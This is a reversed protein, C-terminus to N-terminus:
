KIIKLLNNNLELIEHGLSPNEIIIKDINKEIFNILKNAIFHKKNDLNFYSEILDVIKSIVILIEDPFSFNLFDIQSQFYKHFEKPNNTAYYLLNKFNIKIKANQYIFYLLPTYKKRLMDAKEDLLIEGDKRLFDIFTLSTYKHHTLIEEKFCHSLTVSHKNFLSQLKTYLYNTLYDLKAYKKSSNLFKGLSHAFKKAIKECSKVNTLIKIHDLKKSDIIQKVKILILQYFSILLKEEITVKGAHYLDIITILFTLYFNKRIREDLTQLDDKISITDPISSTIEPGSEVDLFNGDDQFNIFYFKYVKEPLGHTKHIKAKKHIIYKTGGLFCEEVVGISYDLFDPISLYIFCNKTKSKNTCIIIDNELETENEIITEIESLTEEEIYGCIYDNTIYNLGKTTGCTLIRSYKFNPFHEM